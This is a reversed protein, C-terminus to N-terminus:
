DTIIESYEKKEVKVCIETAAKSLDYTGGVRKIIKRKRRVPLNFPKLLKTVSKRWTEPQVIPHLLIVKESPLNKAFTTKVKFLEEFLNDLAKQSNHLYTM